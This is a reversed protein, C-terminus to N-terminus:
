AGGDVLPLAEVTTEIQGVADVVVTEVFEPVDRRKEKLTGELLSAAELTTEIQGVADTVPDARKEVPFLGDLGLLGDIAGTLENGGEAILEEVPELEGQRKVKLGELRSLTNTIGVGDLILDVDDGLTLEDREKVGSEQASPVIDLVGGVVDGAEDTGGVETVSELGNVLDPILTSVEGVSQRKTVGGENASELLGSVVHLVDGVVDGAEDTGGVETVPEVGNVLGPLLTSFEGVSQRKSITSLEAILSEVPISDALVAPSIPGSPIPAALATAALSFIIAYRM